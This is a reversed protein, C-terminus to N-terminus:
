YIELNEWQYFQVAIAPILILYKPATFIFSHWIISMGACKSWFQVNLYNYPKISLKKEEKSWKAYLVIKGKKMNIM